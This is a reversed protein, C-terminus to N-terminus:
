SRGARPWAGATTRSLSSAAQTEPGVTWCLRLTWCPGCGLGQGIAVAVDAARPRRRAM